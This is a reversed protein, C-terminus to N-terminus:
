SEPINSHPQTSGMLFTLNHTLCLQISLQRILSVVYIHTVQLDHTIALPEPHLPTSDVNPVATLTYM